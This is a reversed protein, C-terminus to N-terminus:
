FLTRYCDIKGGTALYRRIEKTVAAYKKAQFLCHVLCLSAIENEPKLKAAQRAFPLAKKHDKLEYYYLSAILIPCLRKPDCDEKAIRKLVAIAELFRRANKLDFAKQYLKGLKTKM